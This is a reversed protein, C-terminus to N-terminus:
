PKRGRASAGAGQKGHRDRLMAAFIQDFSAKGAADSVEVSVEAVGRGGKVFEQSFTALDIEEEGEPVPEDEPLRPGIDDEIRVRLTWRGSHQRPMVELLGIELIENVEERDEASLWRSKGGTVEGPQFSRSASVLLDYAQLRQEDSLWAVIQEPEMDVPYTEM